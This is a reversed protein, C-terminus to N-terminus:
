SIILEKNEPDSKQASTKTTTTKGDQQVVQQDDSGYKSRPDTPKDIQIIKSNNDNEEEHHNVQPQKVTKSVGTEKELFAVVETFSPREDPNAHWCKDIIFNRVKEPVEDPLKMRYNYKVVKIVVELNNLNPYPEAGDNFIEWFMIGYAFVDSKTYYMKKQITEPALYKIPAKTRPDLKYETGEISMGFDSIKVIDDGTLLCNRAAIDRHIIKLSHLYEIGNAAGCCFLMKKETDVKNKQLYKDLAGNTAIEMVLMLPEQGAAVGHLKIVNIHNFKRMLRAEMMIEKIQFKTLKELKALKVAAPTEKKSTQDTFKCLWVEAFAGEGLKKTTEVQNHDLEWTKRGIPNVLMINSGCSIENRQLHYHDILEVISNFAAKSVMYKGNPSKSIIYHKMSKTEKNNKKEKQVVSLIYAKERGPVPISLRVLFDGVNRLMRNIDERPLYGHYYPKKLLDKVGVATEEVM